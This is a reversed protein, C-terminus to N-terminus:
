EGPDSEPSALVRRLPEPTVQWEGRFPNDLDAVVGLVLCILGALAATMGAHSWLHPVGFLLMSGVTLVGGLLLVLWISPPLRLQAMVLRHTRSDSLDDFRSLAEAFLAEQRSGVPEIAELSLWLEDLLREPATCVVGRRMVEWEEEVVAQAYALIRQRVEGRRPEPFGHVVRHLDALDSAEREVAARTDNFQSWVAFVVFALLVAYITGLTQLYSGAADNNAALTSQPVLWRVLIVVGIAVLVSVSSILLSGAPWNKGRM